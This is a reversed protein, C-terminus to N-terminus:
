VVVCTLLAIRKLPCCFRHLVPAMGLWAPSRCLTNASQLTSALVAAPVPPPCRFAARLLSQLSVPLFVLAAPLGTLGLLCHCVALGFSVLAFCLTLAGSKDVIPIASLKHQILLHLAKILPTEYTVTPITGYDGIGSLLNLPTM